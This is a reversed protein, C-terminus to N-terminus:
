PRIAAAAGFKFKEIPPIFSRAALLWAGFFAKVFFPVGRRL